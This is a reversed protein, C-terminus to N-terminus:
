PPHDLELLYDSCSGGRVFARASYGRAFYREFATRTIRRWEGALEPSREKLRQIDAPIAIRVRPADLALDPELSRPGSESVRVENVRPAPALGAAPEPAGALREAVRASAIEWRAVLRDTGIAEHLRSQSAGYFDRHYEGASAGLRAINLHANRSELPDFTWHVLEVGLPLLLDRQHRKLEEGLGRNRYRERVALTDSWHSLRGDRIGSVGFIFGALEGDPAFAGAAVGGVYQVVRLLAAHVVDGYSEGWVDYQLQVAAHLEPTTALPRLEFGGGRV